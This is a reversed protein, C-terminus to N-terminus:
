NWDERLNWDEKVLGDELRLVEFSNRTYERAADSPDVDKHEWMTVVYPGNAFQLVPAHKWEPRITQGAVEPKHSIFQKLGEGGDPVTPNHQTFEPAVIGNM